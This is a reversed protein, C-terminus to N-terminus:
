EVLFGLTRKQLKQAVSLADRIMDYDGKEVFQLNICHDPLKGQRIKFINEQLALKMLCDLSEKYQKGEFVSFHGLEVLENIRDFTSTSEAGYRLGFLRVCDIIHLYGQDRLNLQGKGLGDTPTTIQGIVNLPIRKANEYKAATHVFNTARKTKDIMYYRLDEAIRKKGYIFRFDIMQVSQAIIEPSKDRLWADITAIWSRYSKRWRSNNAAVSDEDYKYGCAELGEIIKASLIEFYRQTSQLRNMPPDCFLLANKQPEYSMREKRGAAGLLLWCYDVPPAGHGEDYMAQESIQIIKRMIRDNFETIITNIEYVHAHENLLAHLVRDIEKNARALGTLTTQKEISDIISLTGVSRAKMLDKVTVIGVLRENEVVPLHKIHNQVMKLLADFYYSSIDLTHLPHGMIELATLTTGKSDETLVKKVLDAETVIGIPINDNKKTVIVSSIKHDRFLKAIEIVSTSATCTYVPTTMFENIKKRFSLSETGHKHQSIEEHLERYIKLLRQSIIRSMEESFASNSRILDSFDKRTIALCTLPQVALVSIPPASGALAAAEGFFNGSRFFEVVSEEGNSMTLLSMAVGTIVIYVEDLAQQEHFVYEQEQFQRFSATDVLQEIAATPLKNFPATQLLIDRAKTKM